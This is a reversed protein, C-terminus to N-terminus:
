LQVSVSIQINRLEFAPTLVLDVTASNTQPFYSVVFDSALLAGVQQMGRLGATIATELANRNALTAGEGVFGKAVGRILNVADFTIRLTSLRTYDSTAAGWTVGDIWNPRRNFDLGVPVIGLNAISDLQTRTPNYRVGSVNYVLKGTTNQWANLQTVYGAYLGAGNSYGFSSDYGLPTLESGVISVYMGNSGNVATNNHDALSPFTIQTAIQTATMTGTSSITPNVTDIFPKLGMVAFCPNSRSTIGMVAASVRNAMSSSSVTSNDAYFGIPMDDSPTAPYEWDGPGGGRGWPVIIDPAASEAADFASNFPIHAGHNHNTGNGAITVNVLSQLNADTIGMPLAVIFIQPAGGAVIELFARHAGSGFGYAAVVTQENTAFYPDYDYVPSTGDSTGDPTNRPAIAVVRPGLPVDTRTLTYFRDKIVTTVGPLAM